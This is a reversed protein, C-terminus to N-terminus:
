REKQKKLFLKKVFNNKFNGHIMFFINYYQKKILWIDIKEIKNLGSNKLVSCNELEKIPLGKKILRIGNERSEGKPAINLLKFALRINRMFILNYTDDGKIPALFEEELKVTKIFTTIQEENYKLSTSHGNRYFHEYLVDSIIAVTKCKTYCGNNFFVDENGYKFTEDFYLNNELLFSKLYLGNWVSSMIGSAKLLHYVNLFEDKNYIKTETWACTRYGIHNGELDVTTNKRGCKVFDVKRISLQNVMVELFNKEYIDDNDIFTIYEGKAENIGLNRASCVGGNPKHITRVRSDVTEFRDCVDPSNDTSGDDILLLEFESYTQTLVSEIADNLYKESNYVPMIISVLMKSNEKKDMM